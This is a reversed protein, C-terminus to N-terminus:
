TDAEDDCVAALETDVFCICSRDPLGNYRSPSGRNAVGTKGDQSQALDAPAMVKLGKISQNIMDLGQRFGTTVGEEALLETPFLSKWWQHWQFVQDLDTSSSTSPHTLWLYLVQHWKPFFENVLLSSFTTSPFFDYWPLVAELIEIKQNRPNIEFLQLGEVLRPLVSKLILMEMDAASFVGKWPELVRLASPDLVNWAALGLALKRRIDGYLEQDLRSEELVPLWPHIWTHLM